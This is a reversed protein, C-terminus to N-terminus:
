LPWLPGPPSWTPSLHLTKQSTSYGPALGEMLCARGGLSGATHPKRTGAGAEAWAEWPWEASDGGELRRERQHPELRTGDLHGWVAPPQRPWARVSPSCGADQDGLVETGAGGRPRPCRGRM